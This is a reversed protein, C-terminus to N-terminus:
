CKCGRKAKGLTDNKQLGKSRILDSATWPNNLQMFLMEGALGRGTLALCEKLVLCDDMFSFFTSVTCPTVGTSVFASSPNQFWTGAAHDVKDAQRSCLPKLLM